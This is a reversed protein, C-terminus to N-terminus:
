KTRFCHRYALKLPQEPWTVGEMQGSQELDVQKLQGLDAVMSHKLDEVMLQSSMKAAVVEQYM